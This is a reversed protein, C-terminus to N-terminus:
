PMVVGDAGAALAQDMTAEDSLGTLIIIRSRGM